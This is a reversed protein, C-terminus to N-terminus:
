VVFFPSGLAAVLAPEVVRATHQHESSSLAHVAWLLRSVFWRSTIRCATNSPRRLGGAAANPAPTSAAASRVQVDRLLHPPLSIAAAVSSQLAASMAMIDVYHDTATVGQENTHSYEIWFSRLHDCAARAASAERFLPAAAAAFRDLALAFPLINVTSFVSLIAFDQPQESACISAAASAPSATPCTFLHTNPAGIIAPSAVVSCHLHRFPWLAHLTSKCCNQLFVLGIRGGVTDNFKTLAAAAAGVDMWRLAAVSGATVEEPCIHMVGGGHGMIAVCIHAATAAHESAWSLFSEFSSICSADL